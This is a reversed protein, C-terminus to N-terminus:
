GGSKFLIEFNAAPVRAKEDYRVCKRKEKVILNFFLCISGFSCLLKCFKWRIKLGQCCFLVGGGLVFGCVQFDALIGRGGGCKLLGPDRRRCHIGVKGVV